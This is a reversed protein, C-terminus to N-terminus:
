GGHKDVSFQHVGIREEVRGVATVFQQAPVSDKAHWKLRTGVDDSNMQSIHVRAAVSSEVDLDNM